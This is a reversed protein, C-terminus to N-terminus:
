EGRVTRFSFAGLLYNIDRQDDSLPLFVSRYLVEEGDERTWKGAVYLPNKLSAALKQFHLFRSRIARPLANAVKRGTPDVGLAARLVPGAQEFSYDKPAGAVRVVFLHDWLEAASKATVQARAPYPRPAAMERWWELARSCARREVGDVDALAPPRA